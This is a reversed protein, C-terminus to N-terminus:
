RTERRPRTPQRLVRALDEISLEIVDLGRELDLSSDLWPYPGKATAM